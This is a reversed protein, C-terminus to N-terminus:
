RGLGRSWGIPWPGRWDECETGSGSSQFVRRPRDSLARALEFPRSSGTWSHRSWSLRGLFSQLLLLQKKKVIRVNVNLKKEKPTPCIKPMRGVGAWAWPGVLRAGREVAVLRVGLGM